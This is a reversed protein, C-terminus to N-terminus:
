DHLIENDNDDLPLLGSVDDLSIPKPESHQLPTELDSLIKVRDEYLTKNVEMTYTQLKLVTDKITNMETVLLEFRNNFEDVINSIDNSISDTINNNTNPINSMGTIQQELTKIRSSMTKLVQEITMQNPNPQNNAPSNQPAPPVQAAAGARRRIAAANSSSM